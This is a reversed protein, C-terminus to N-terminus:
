GYTFILTVTIIWLLFNIFFPKDKFFFDEAPLHPTKLYLGWLYRFLGFIVFITTYILMGHGKQKAAEVTYLSYFVLCSTASIALLKDLLLINYGQLGKRHHWYLDIEIDQRRKGLALFLALVFTCLIIWASSHVSIAYAGMLVRLVFSLAISIIDFLPLHKLFYTYLVNILWYGLLVFLCPTPLFLVSTLAIVALFCLEVTAKAETVLGAALPRKRKEPHHKDEEEDHLDNLIYVASAGMCFIFTALLAHIWASIFGFQNAFLLPALVFINKVWQKPRILKLYSIM